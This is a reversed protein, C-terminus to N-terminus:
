QQAVLQAEGSLRPLLCVAWQSEPDGWVAASHESLEVPVEPDDQAGMKSLKIHAMAAAPTDVPQVLSRLGLRDETLAQLLAKFHQEQETCLELLALQQTQHIGTLSLPVM